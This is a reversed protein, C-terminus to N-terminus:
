DTRSFFCFSAIKGLGREEANPRLSGNSSTSKVNSAKTKWSYSFKGMIMTFGSIAERLSEIGLCCDSKYAPFAKRPITSPV